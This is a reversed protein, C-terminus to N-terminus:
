ENSSCNSHTEKTSAKAVNRQSLGRGAREIDARHDYAVGGVVAAGVAAAVKTGASIGQSTV